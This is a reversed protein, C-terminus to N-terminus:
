PALASRGSYAEMFKPSESPDTVIGGSPSRVILVTVDQTGTGINKDLLVASRGVGKVVTAIKLNGASTAQVVKAGIPLKNIEGRGRVVIKTVGGSMSLTARQVIDSDVYNTGTPVEYPIVMFRYDNRGSQPRSAYIVFARGRKPEGNPGEPYSGLPFRKDHRGVDDDTLMGWGPNISNSSNRMRAKVVAVANEGVLTRIIDDETSIHSQIGAHLAGAVMGMGVVLVGLAIMIETLTFGGRAAANRRCLGDAM